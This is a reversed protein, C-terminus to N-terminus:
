QVLLFWLGLRAIKLNSEARRISLDVFEATSERLPRWTGRALYLCGFWFLAMSGLGEVAIAVDLRGGRAGRILFAAGCVVTIVIPAIMGLSTRRTQARVRSRLTAAWHREEDGRPDIERWQLQWREPEADKNM